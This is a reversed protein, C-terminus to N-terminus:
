WWMGTCIQRGWHNKNALIVSKNLNIIRLLLILSNYVAKALAV